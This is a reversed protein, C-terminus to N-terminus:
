QLPANTLQLVHHALPTVCWAEFVQQSHFSLFHNLAKFGVGINMCHKIHLHLAYWATDSHHIPRRKLLKFFIRFVCRLLLSYMKHIEYQLLITYIDYQNDFCLLQWANSNPFLNYLANYQLSRLWKYFKKM